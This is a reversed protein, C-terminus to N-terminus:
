NTKRTDRSPQTARGRLAMPNGATQSQPIEQDYESVIKGWPELVKLSLSNKIELHNTMRELFTKHCKTFLKNIILMELIQSLLFKTFLM